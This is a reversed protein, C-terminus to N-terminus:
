AGCFKSPWKRPVTVMRSASVSDSLMGAITVSSATPGARSTARIFRAPMAGASGASDEGPRATPRPPTPM